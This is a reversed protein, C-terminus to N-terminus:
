SWRRVAQALKAKTQADGTSRAEIRVLCEDIGPHIVILEAGLDAWFKRQKYQGATAILWCRPHHTLGKCFHDLRTNRLRILQNLQDGTLTHLAAQHVEVAMADLDIVLDRVQAHEAVYTSKGAGPPGCVLVLPKGPRQLFAPTMTSRGFGGDERATKISHCPHCLGQWNDEDWFLEPDNKHPIIHDVETAARIRDQRACEACLPHKVLYAGRAKQWRYGYGRQTSSRRKKLSPQHPAANSRGPMHSRPKVPM